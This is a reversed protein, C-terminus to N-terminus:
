ASTSLHCGNKREAPGFRVVFRPSPYTVAHNGPTDAQQAPEVKM